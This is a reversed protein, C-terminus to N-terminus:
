FVEELENMYETTKIKDYDNPLKGQLFNIMSPKLDRGIKKTFLENIFKNDKSLEILIARM